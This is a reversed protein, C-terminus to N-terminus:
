ASPAAPPPVPPAAPPPPPPSRMATLIESIVRDRGWRGDVKVSLEQAKKRLDEDPLTELQQVAPDVVVPQETPLPDPVSERLVAIPPPPVSPQVAGQGSVAAKLPAQLIESARGASM